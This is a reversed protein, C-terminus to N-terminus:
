EWIKTKKWNKVKKNAIPEPDIVLPFEGRPIGLYEVAEITPIGMSRYKVTVTRDQGIGFDIGVFYGVGGIIAFKGNM